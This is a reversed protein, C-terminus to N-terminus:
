ASLINTGAAYACRCVPTNEPHEMANRLTKSDVVNGHICMGGREMFVRVLTMMDKLGEEGSVASPHLMFDAPAGDVFLSGDVSTVSKIFATVGNREMGIVPRLNKSLPEGALRGDPTAGTYRGYREAMDVSDAGMRFVGGNRTPAGIINQAMFNFIDAALKDAEEIGNGWKVSEKMVRRRLKEEERWNNRLIQSLQPITLEGREYVFKKVTLLSDV